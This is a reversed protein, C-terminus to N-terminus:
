LSPITSLITGLGVLAIGVLEWRISGTAVESVSKRLADADTGLRSLRADTQRQAYADNEVHQRLETTLADLREALALAMAGAGAPLTDAAETVPSM